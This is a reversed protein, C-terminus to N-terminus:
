ACRSCGASVFASAPDDLLTLRWAWTRVLHSVGALAIVLVLGWGVSAIGELLGRRAPAGCWTRWFCCRWDVGRGSPGVAQRAVAPERLMNLARRRPM